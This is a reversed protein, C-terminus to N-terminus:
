PCELKHSCSAVCVCVTSVILAEQPPNVCFLPSCVDECLCVRVCVDECVYRM